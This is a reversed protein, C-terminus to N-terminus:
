LIREMVAAQFRKRLSRVFIHFTGPNKLKALDDQWGDVAQSIQTVKYLDNLGVRIAFSFIREPSGPDINNLLFHLEGQKGKLFTLGLVQEYVSVCKKLSGLKEELSHKQVKMISENSAFEQMKIWLETKGQKIQSILAAEEM